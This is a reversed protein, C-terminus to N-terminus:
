NKSANNKPPAPVPQNTSNPPQVGTPSVMLSGLSYIDGEWENNDVVSYWHADEYSVIPGYEGAICEAYIQPGYVTTDGPTASFQIVGFDPNDWTCTIVQNDPTAFYPNSINYTM